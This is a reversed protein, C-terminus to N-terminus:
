EKPGFSKILLGIATGLIMAAIPHSVPGPAAADTLFGAGAGGGAHLATSAASHGLNVARTKLNALKANKGFQLTPRNMVSNMTKDGKETSFNAHLRPETWAIKRTEVNIGSSPIEIKGSTIASLRCQVGLAL